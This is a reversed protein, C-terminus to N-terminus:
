REGRMEFVGNDRLEFISLRIEGLVKENLIFLTDSDKKTIQANLFINKGLENKRELKLHIPIKNEFFYNLKELNARQENTLNDQTMYGM